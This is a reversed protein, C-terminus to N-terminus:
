RKHYLYMIKNPVIASILPKLLYIYNWIPFKLLEYGHYYNKVTDFAYKISRKKYDNLSEHYKYLPEQVNYGKYGAHYFRFWLDADQGRRTRESVTYGGLEDYVRKRMMITPHAFPVGTLLDKKNPIEITRRVGKEGNDDFLIMWSGVVEYQPNNNLFDVQKEFRNPLCIDDTDVRAVYDGKAYELCHNLTAALRMNKENNILLMNDYKEAYEKAINHTNDTSGDDCMIIEWNSYTQALISDICRALTDECNYLGMIVSVKMKDMGVGM